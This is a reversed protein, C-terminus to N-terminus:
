ARKGTGALLLAGGVVMAAGGAWIPSSNEEAKTVEVDGVKLLDRWSTFTAGRLLLFAGLGLLVLGALIFQRM